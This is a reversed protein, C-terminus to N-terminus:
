KTNSVIKQKFPLNEQNFCITYFEQGDQINPIDPYNIKKGPVPSQYTTM